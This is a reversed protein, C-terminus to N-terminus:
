FTANLSLGGHSGTFIPAIEIAPESKAGQRRLVTQRAALGAILMAVGATQGLGSLILPVAGGASAEATGITIFPGVLPIFLPVFDDDDEPTPVQECTSSLLGTSQCRIEDNDRVVSDAISAAVMTLVYVGGFSAAGGIVLGLRIKTEKSYGPPIEDGEEYDLERPLTPETGYGYGPPPQGYGPPPQGYGPQGYGPQGYGPQGYGPPPQGYGPQGYGPPPPYAGPPPPQAEDVPPAPPPAGGPEQASLPSTFTGAMVGAAALM